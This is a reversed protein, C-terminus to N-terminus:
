DGKLKKIFKKSAKTFAAKHEPTIVKEFDEDDTLDTILKAMEDVLEIEGATIVEASVRLDTLEEIAKWLMDRRVWDSTNEYKKTLEGIRKELGRVLYMNAM